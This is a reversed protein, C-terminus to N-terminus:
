NGLVAADSSDALGKASKLGIASSFNAGAIKAGTFDALSLDAGTFDAGRLDADTFDVWILKAHRFNGSNLRAGQFRAYTLDTLVFTVGELQSGSFECRVLSSRGGFVAGTLTAAGFDAGDFRGIFKTHAMTAERFIPAESPDGDLSTHIGPRLLTAGTLNAGRFNTRTLTARDLVVQKLQADRLDSDTLDAGFLNSGDLRAAKFDLKSLDLSQLQRGTLDVPSMNSAGTLAVVVDRVSVSDALASTTIGSVALLSVLLALSM